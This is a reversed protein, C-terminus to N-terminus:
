PLLWADGVAVYLSPGGSPVSSDSAGRGWVGLSGTTGSEETHGSFDEGVVPRIRDGTVSKAKAKGGDCHIVDQDDHGHYVAKDNSRGSVM